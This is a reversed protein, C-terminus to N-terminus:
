FKAAIGLRMTTGRADSKWALDTLPNYTSGREEYQVLNMGYKNWQWDFFMGVYKTFMWKGGVGLAFHVGTFKATVLPDGAQFKWWNYGLMTNGYFSFKDKNLFYFHTSWDVQNFTNSEDDEFELFKGRSYAIGTSVWDLLGYEAELTWYMPAITDHVSESLGNNLNTLTIYHNYAGIAGGFSGHITGKQNLQASTSLSVLCACAIWFGKM